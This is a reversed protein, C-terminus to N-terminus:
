KGKRLGMVGIIVFIFAAMLRWSFIDAFRPSPATFILLVTLLLGSIIAIVAAIKQVVNRKM